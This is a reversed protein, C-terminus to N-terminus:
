TDVGTEASRSVTDRRAVDPPNHWPLRPPDHPLPQLECGLKGFRRQRKDRILQLTQGRGARDIIDKMTELLPSHSDTEIRFYM